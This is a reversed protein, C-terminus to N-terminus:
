IRVQRQKWRKKFYYSMGPRNKNIESIRQETKKSIPKRERLMEPIERLSTGVAKLWYRFYGDRLSYLLMVVSRKTLYFFGYRWRYNRFVLWFTNRTDYYYRRWQKRSERSYKHRVVVEPSYRIEYGRDIIRAALDSGEHSIFFKSPYLGADVVADKRFAVAGETIETTLFERHSFDEEACPHCWNCVAGTYYDTVQFCVAALLRNEEFKRKL